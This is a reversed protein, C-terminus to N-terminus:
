ASSRASARRSTPGGPATAQGAAPWRVSRGAPHRQDRRHAGPHDPRSGPRGARRHGPGRGRRGGALRHGPLARWPVLDAGAARQLGVPQHVAGAPLPRPGSGGTTGVTARGAPRGPRRVHAGRGGRAGTRGPGGREGRRGLFRGRSGDAARGHVAARHEWRGPLVRPQCFHARPPPRRVGRAVAPDATLRSARDLGRVPHLVRSRALHHDAPLSLHAARRRVRDRGRHRGGGGVVVHAGARSRANAPHGAM